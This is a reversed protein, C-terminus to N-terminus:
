SRLRPRWIAGLTKLKARLGVEDWAVRVYVMDEPSRSARPSRERPTWDDEAVILEVTTYRKRKDADYRHRVCVLREGFRAALKRTGGCPSARKWTQRVDSGRDRNVRRASL